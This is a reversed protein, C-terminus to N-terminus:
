MIHSQNPLGLYFIGLSISVCFQVSFRTFVLMLVYWEKRTLKQQMVPTANERNISLCKTSSISAKIYQILIIM